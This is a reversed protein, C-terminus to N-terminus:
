LDALPAVRCQRTSRQARCAARCGTGIPNTIPGAGTTTRCGCRVGTGVPFGLFNEVYSILPPDFEVTKAGAAVAEEATYEVAYTYGTTPPLEAPMADPGREGVTYETVHVRLADVPQEAGDPMVLTAQTGPLVLLTERRSGENDTM